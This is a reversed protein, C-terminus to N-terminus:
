LDWQYNCRGQDAKKYVRIEECTACKIMRISNQLFKRQYTWYCIARQDDAYANQIKAQVKFDTVSSVNNSNQINIALAAIFTLGVILILIIKKM